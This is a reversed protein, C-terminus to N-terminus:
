QVREELIKTVMSELTQINAISCSYGYDQI